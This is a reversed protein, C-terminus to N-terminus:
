GRIALPKVTRGSIYVNDGLLRTNVPELLVADSIPAFGLGGIPSRAANGGGVIKPAIFTHLEDIQRADLFAGLVGAGGEVLLNSMGQEGLRSLLEPVQDTICITQLEIVQVGMERLRRQADLPANPTIVVITPIERATEFVQSNDPSMLRRDLIIRTARRPGSPRATLLPNDAVITGSGVVIGDVRGRIQHVVARSAENSIWKSTGDWAAIKGDLTMAWKAVVWPKGTQIRKLYSALLYRAESALLGVEVKVGAARLTAIGKGSVAPFPDELAVVVRAIGAKLIADVCPPTKGHHCCPELTVYLTAGNTPVKCASLANVEAHPGGFKAHCGEGIIVGDKVIVAGVMPNPEVYGEGQAALELAQRMFSEDDNPSQSSM